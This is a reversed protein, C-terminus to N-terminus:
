DINWIYTIDEGYLLEVLISRSIGTLNWSETRTTTCSISRGYRIFWVQGGAPEDGWFSIIMLLTLWPVLMISQNFPLNSSIQRRLPLYDHKYSYRSYVNDMCGGFWFHEPSRRYSGPIRASSFVTIIPPISGSGRQQFEL